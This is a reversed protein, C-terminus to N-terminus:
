HNNVIFVSSVKMDFWEDEADILIFDKIIDVFTLVWGHSKQLFDQFM